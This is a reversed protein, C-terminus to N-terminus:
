SRAALTDARVGAPRGGLGRGRRRCLVHRPRHRLLVQRGRSVDAATVVLRWAREPPVSSDPDVRRLDGFTEVGLDSLQEALWAKLPRHDHLGLEFLVALGRGIAGLGTLPRAPVLETLDLGRVLTDLQGPPMGAALLAAIIAGASTGAVREVEVGEDALGAVAGALAVGKAGGGELVLDAQLTDV